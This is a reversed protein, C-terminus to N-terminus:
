SRIGQDPETHWGWEGTGEVQRCVYIVGREDTYREGDHSQDCPPFPFVDEDWEIPDFDKGDTMGYTYGMGYPELM